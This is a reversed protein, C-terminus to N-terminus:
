RWTGLTSHGVGAVAVADSRAGVVGLDPVGGCVTGLTSGGVRVWSGFTAGLVMWDLYCGRGRSCFCLFPGVVLDWTRSPRRVRGILMDLLAIALATVM